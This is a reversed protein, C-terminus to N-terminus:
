SLCILYKLLLSSQTKSNWNSDYIINQYKKKLNKVLMNFLMKLSFTKINSFRIDNRKKLLKNEMAIIRKSEFHLWSSVFCVLNSIM